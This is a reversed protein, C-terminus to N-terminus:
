CQKMWHQPDTVNPASEYGRIRVEQSVSGSGAGKKLSELSAFLNKFNKRIKKMYSVRLCM